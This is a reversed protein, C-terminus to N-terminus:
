NRDPAHRQQAAHSFPEASRHSQHRAIVVAAALYVMSYIALWLVALVIGGEIIGGYECPKQEQCSARVLATLAASAIVGGALMSLFFGSLIKSLSLAVGMLRSIAATVIVGCSVFLAVIILLLPMTSGLARSSRRARVMSSSRGASHPDM